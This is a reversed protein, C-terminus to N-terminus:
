AFWPVFGGLGWASPRFGLALSWDVGVESGAAATRLSAPRTQELNQYTNPVRWYLLEEILFFSSM